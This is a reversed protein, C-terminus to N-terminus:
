REWPPRRTRFRPRRPKDSPTCDAAKIQDYRATSMAWLTDDDVAGGRLAVLVEALQDTTDAADMRERADQMSRAPGEEAQLETWSM